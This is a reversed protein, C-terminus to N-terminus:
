NILLRLHQIYKGNELIYDYLQKVPVYDPTLRLADENGIMIFHKRARSVAVNILKKDSMLPSNQFDDSDSCVCSFFIIDKEDGQFTHVTGVTLDQFQAIEKKMANIHRRYPAIIGIQKQSISCDRILCEVIRNIFNIEQSNYKSGKGFSKGNVNVFALHEEFLQAVSENLVSIKSPQKTIVNLGYGILNDCFRIISPACRFHERLRVPSQATLNKVTTFVSNDPSLHEPVEPRQPVAGTLVPGLQNDDGIAIFSKSRLYLPFAYLFLTQSAEDIIAYDITNAKPPCIKTSSLATTLIIPAFKFLKDHLGWFVNNQLKNTNRQVHQIWENDNLLSWFHFEKNRLYFLERASNFLNDNVDCGSFEDIEHSIGILKKHTRDIHRQLDNYRVVQRIADLLFRERSFLEKCPIYKKFRLSQMVVGCENCLNALREKTRRGTLLSLPWINNWWKNLKGFLYNFVAYTDSDIGQMATDNVFFRRLDSIDIQNKVLSRYEYYTSIFNKLRNTDQELARINQEIDNSSYQSRKKIFDFIKQTFDKIYEDKGLRAYGPLMEGTKLMPSMNQDFKELKELVSDVAKNNTSAVVVTKGAIAMDACFTVILQSKGTGPPGEIMCFDNCIMHRYADTQSDSLDFGWFTKRYELINNVKKYTYKPGWLKTIHGVMDKDTAIVNKIRNLDERINKTYKERDEYAYIIGPSSQFNATDHPKMEVPQEENEKKNFASLVKNISDMTSYINLLTLVSCPLLSVSIVGSISAIVNILNVHFDIEKLFSKHLSTKEINPLQNIARYNPSKNTVFIKEKNENYELSYCAFAYYYKRDESLLVPSALGFSKNGEKDDQLIQLIFDTIEASLTKDQIVDLLDFNEYGYRDIARIVAAVDSAPVLVGSSTPVVFIDANLFDQYNEILSSEKM